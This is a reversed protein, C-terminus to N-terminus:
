ASPSGRPRTGAPMAGACPHRARSNTRAEPSQQLLRQRSLRFVGTFSPGLDRGPRM